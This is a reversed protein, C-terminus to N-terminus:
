VGSRRTCQGQGEWFKKLVILFLNRHKYAVWDIANRHCSASHVFVCDKESQRRERLLICKLNRWTNKRSSLENQKLVSFSDMIPIHRNTQGNMYLSCRPQKLSKTNIFSASCQNWCPLYQNCIKTHVYPKLEIPYIGLHAIAPDYLAINSKTLLQRFMENFFEQPEANKGANTIIQM